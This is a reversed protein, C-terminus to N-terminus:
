LAGAPPAPKHQRMPHMGTACMAATLGTSEKFAAIMGHMVAPLAERWNTQEKNLVQALTLKVHQIAREAVGISEHHDTAALGVKIGLSARWAEFASSIWRSNRDLTLSHPLGFYGTM